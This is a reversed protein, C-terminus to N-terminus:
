SRLRAHRQQAPFLVEREFYRRLRQIRPDDRGPMTALHQVVSDVRLMLTGEDDRRWNGAHRAALVPETDRTGLVRQLGDGAVWMARGEEVIVLQVGGFSHFSGQDGAWLLGRVFLRADSLWRVGVWPLVAAVLALAIAALLLLWLGVGLVHLWGLFTAITLAVLFARGGPSNM